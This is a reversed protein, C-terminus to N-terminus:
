LSPIKGRCKKAPGPRLGIVGILLRRRVILRDVVISSPRDVIGGMSEAQSIRYERRM